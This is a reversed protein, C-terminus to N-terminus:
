WHCTLGSRGSGSTVRRGRRWTSSGRKTMMETSTEVRATDQSVLVYERFSDIQRFRDFKTRRDYSETSPSPVELVLRPNTVTEGRKDDADLDPHGCIVTLDPYGYLTGRSVPVPPQQRVPRLSGGTLRDGLTRICNASIRSHAASGGAMAIIEGDRYEHKETSDREILLYEEV